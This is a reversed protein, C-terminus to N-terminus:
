WLIFTFISIFRSPYVVYLRWDNNTRRLATIWICTYIFTSAGDFCRQHKLMGFDGSSKSKDMRSDSQRACLIDHSSLHLKRSMCNIRRVLGGGRRRGGSRSASRRRENASFRWYQVILICAEHFKCWCVLRAMKDGAEYEEFCIVCEEEEGDADICDKETAIFPFLGRAAHSMRNNNSAGEGPNSM